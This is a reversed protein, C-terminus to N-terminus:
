KEQLSLTVGDGNDYNTGIDFVATQPTLTADAGRFAVEDNRLEFYRVVQGKEGFVMATLLGSTVLTDREGSEWNWDFPCEDSKTGPDVKAVIRVKNWAFDTFDVLRLQGPRNKSHLFENLSTRYQKIDSCKSYLDQYYLSLVLVVIVPAIYLAPRAPLASLAEKIM